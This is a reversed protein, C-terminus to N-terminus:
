QVLCKKNFVIWFQINKKETNEDNVVDDDVAASPLDPGPPVMGPYNTTSSDSGLVSSDMIAMSRLKCNTFGYNPNNGATGLGLEHMNAKGVFIVGCSRLRSVSVADKKVPRVEHFWTTAGKSPHPYCDIDDKISVFIGDLISLPKGEEFRQTSAAAQKRVEEADFSILLPAPPKKNSFEEMDSIVREAVM